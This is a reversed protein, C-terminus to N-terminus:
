PRAETDPALVAHGAATAVARVVAGGLKVRVRFTEGIRAPGLAIGEFRADVVASHEEVILTDGARILPILKGAPLNHAMIAPLESPGERVLLLHGPGGPHDESRVLLWCDGSSPDDIERSVGSPEISEVSRLESSHKSRPAQGHLTMCILAIFVLEDLGPHRRTTVLFRM